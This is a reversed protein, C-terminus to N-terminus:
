VGEKIRHMVLLQIRGNTSTLTRNGALLQSDMEGSQPYLAEWHLHSHMQQLVTGHVCDKSKWM